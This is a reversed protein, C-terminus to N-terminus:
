ATARDFHVRRVGPIPLPTVDMTTSVHSGPVAKLKRLVPLFKNHKQVEQLAAMGVCYKSCRRTPHQHLARLIKDAIGNGNASKTEIIFADGDISCARDTGSFELSCDITMREGGEKAVLTIRQYRMELSPELTHCFDRGYLDGYASHVHALAAEDLMGYKELAYGLRKKITIGRTGKLKVEVFCLQADAYRRVRVKFRQRRGQHHDFYSKNNGDDFYCTEYTFCRKGAIELVDFHNALDVIAQRLVSESLVYKNDLRELMAAKADLQKLGIPKFPDVLWSKPLARNSPRDHNTLSGDDVRLLAAPAQERHLLPGIPHRQANLRSFM